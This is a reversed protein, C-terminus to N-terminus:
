VVMIKAFISLFVGDSASRTRHSIGSPLPNSIPRSPRRSAEQNPAARAGIEIRPVTDGALAAQYAEMFEASGALGPLATGNFGPRRFYHRTKGHRDRFRHIYKLKLYPLPKM